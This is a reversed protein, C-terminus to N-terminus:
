ASKQHENVSVIGTRENWKIKGVVMISEALRDELGSDYMPAGREISAARGQMEAILKEQETAPAMIPELVQQKWGAHNEALKKLSKASERLLKLEEEGAVETTLLESLRTLNTREELRVKKERELHQRYLDQWGDTGTTEASRRGADLIVENRAQFEAVLDSKAM